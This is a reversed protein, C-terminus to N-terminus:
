AWPRTAGIFGTMYVPQIQVNEGTHPAAIMMGGGIYMAVHHITAPDSTNLAWFLLDGPELDALAPHPGSSWQQAATRPLGIGAHAYSWQTLGSCDFSDPGTAGWVYPVGLRSRAAAIAAAAVNNPPTVPGSSNITGGASSVATTFSAAAAAAAAREDAREIRRVTANARALAQRQQALLTQVKLAASQRAVQLATVQRSVAADKRDLASAQALTHAAADALRTSYAIVSDALKYRDVADTPNQGAIVSALVTSAGGSEYLARARDVVSQQAAAAATQIRSLRQDARGREAVAMALRAQAADYKETAVEAQTRLQDVTKVLAAARAKATALPDAAAPPVATATTLAIAAMGLAATTARALRRM